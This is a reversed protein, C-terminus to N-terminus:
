FLIGTHPSAASSSCSHLHLLVFLVCIPLTWDLLQVGGRSWGGVGMWLRPEATGGTSEACLVLCQEQLMDALVPSSPRLAATLLAELATGAECGGGGQRAMAEDGVFHSIGESVVLLREAYM